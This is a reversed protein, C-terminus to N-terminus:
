LSSLTNLCTDFAFTVIIGDVISYVVVFTDYKVKLKYIIDPLESLVTFSDSWAITMKNNLALNAFAEMQKQFEYTMIYTILFGTILVTNCM